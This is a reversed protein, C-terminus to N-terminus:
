TGATALSRMMAFDASPNSPTSSYTPSYNYNNTTTRMAATRNADVISGSGQPVFLEPGREGVLYSEGAMVSGGLAKAGATTGSNDGGGGGGGLNPVKVKAAYELFKKIADVAGGIASAVGDFAGAIGDVISQLGRGAPALGEMASQLPGKLASAVADVVPQLATGIANALDSVATYVINFGMHAINTLAPLLTGTVFGAFESIAPLLTGTFFDSLQQIIPPITTGLWTWLDSLVPEIVAWAAATTEQIGGWNQQWALTLVGVALGIAAIPILVPALAAITATASTLAAAAWAIFAPVVAATIAGAIGMLVPTAGAIADQLGPFQATLAAIPEQGGAVANTFEIVKNVGSTFQEIMPTLVPLLKTGITIQLAEISGKMNEIAFNFGQQTAASQAQIGNAEAMAASFKQYGATGQEMVALAANKADNGFITNMAESRQAESLGAFAEQLLGAAAEVGIFAGQADYFASGTEETYLGLEAMAEKATKTSPILRTFFNNFSTGQTAATSFAGSTAGMVTVFEEYDVGAAKASGAAMLMAESLKDADLTSANAAKTLLEQASALFLAQDAASASTDGWTSLLKASANAAEEITAFGAALSFQITDRLAGAAVIAPDIGGKVMATAADQVATTSVPLAQGLSLFQNKFEELEKGGLGSAAAFTNMGAEFQGAASISDKVFGGIAVAAAGAALAVAGLAATGVSKLADFGGKTNKAAKDIDDLGKATDKLGRDASSSIIEIKIVAAM